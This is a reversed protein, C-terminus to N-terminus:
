RLQKLYATLARVTDAGFIFRPMNAGPKVKQPDTLWRNINGTTNGMMGALMTQRSGFHTLDPGQTGNANTGTISHCSSCSANMFLAAGLKASTDTTPLASRVQERLWQEYDTPKQAVVLIRMWAHQQGCFESCAGEYIGPKDIAVWLFNHMGPIMDMKGGLAPVWWDHIVDAAELQILVKKGIPLHIENATNITTGPYTAQWWWQHGTIIVDPKHNGRDPLVASMTNVSWFFFSIVLILPIGVMWIELKRNGSTQIPESSDQKARYKFCIFAALGAVLLFIACAAIIFGYDLDNIKKAQPTAANFISQTTVFLICFNFQEM